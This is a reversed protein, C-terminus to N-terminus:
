MMVYILIHPNIVQQLSVRMTKKKLDDHLEWYNSRKIYATYHGLTRHVELVSNGVFNVIGLLKFWNKNIMITTPISAIKCNVDGYYGLLDVDIFIHSEVEYITDIYNCCSNCLEQRRSICKNIETELTEKTFGKKAITKMNPTLFNINENKVSGCRDCNIIKKGSIIELQKILNQINCQADYCQVGSM